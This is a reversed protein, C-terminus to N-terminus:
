GAFVRFGFCISGGVERLFSWAMKPEKFRKKKVEGNVTYTVTYPISRNISRARMTGFVQRSRLVRQILGVVKDRNNYVVWLKWQKNFKIYM